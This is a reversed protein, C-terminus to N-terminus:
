AAIAHRLVVLLHQAIQVLRLSLVRQVAHDGAVVVLARREILQHVGAVALVAVNDAHDSDVGVPSHAIVAQRGPERRVDHVVEAHRQVLVDIVVLREDGGHVVAVLLHLWPQVLLRALIKGEDALGAAGAHHLSDGRRHFRLITQVVHVLNGVRLSIHIIKLLLHLLQPVRSMAHRHQVVLQRRVEEGILSSSFRHLVCERRVERVALIHDDGTLLLCSRPTIVNCLKLLHQAKHFAREHTDAVVPLLIREQASKGPFIFCVM